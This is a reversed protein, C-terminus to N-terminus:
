NNSVYLLLANCKETMDPPLFCQATSLILDFIKFYNIYGAGYKGSVLLILEFNGFVEEQNTKRCVKTWKLYFSLHCKLMSNTSFSRRLILLDYSFHQRSSHETHFESLM